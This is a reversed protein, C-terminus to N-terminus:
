LRLWFYITGLVRGGRRRGKRKEKAKVTFRRGVALQKAVRVYITVNQLLEVCGEGNREKDGLGGSGREWSADRRGCKDGWVVYRFVEGKDEDSGSVKAEGQGAPAVLVLSGDEEVRVGVVAAGNYDVTM